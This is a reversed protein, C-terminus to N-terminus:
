NLTIKPYPAAFGSLRILFPLDRMDSIAPWTATTVPADDPMPAAITRVRLPAPALM